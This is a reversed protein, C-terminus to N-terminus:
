YSQIEIPWHLSPNKRWDYCLYSITKKNIWWFLSDGIKSNRIEAEKVNHPWKSYNMQTDKNRCYNRLNVIQSSSLPKELIKSPRKSWWKSKKLLNPVLSIRYLLKKKLERKLERLERVSYRTILRWRRYNSCSINIRMHNNINEKLTEPYISM